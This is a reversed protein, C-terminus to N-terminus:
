WIGSRKVFFVLLFALFLLFLLNLLWYAYILLLALNRSIAGLRFWETKGSGARRFLFNHRNFLRHLFAEFERAFLVRRATLVYLRDTELQRKLDRHRIMANRAIGIKCKNSGALRLLYIYSFM